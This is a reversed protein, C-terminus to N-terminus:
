AAAGLAELVEADHTKPSAKEIVPVIRGDAGIVFTARQAGWYRKGYMAERTPTPMTLSSRRMASSQPTLLVRTMM